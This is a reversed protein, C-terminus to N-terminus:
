GPGRSPDLLRMMHMTDGKFGQLDIGHNYFIHRDFAVNHM